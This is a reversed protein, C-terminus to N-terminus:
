ASLDVGPTPWRVRTAWGCQEFRRIMWASPDLMGRHAGHRAWAPHAHHVNHWNDGLSLIALPWLNTSRDSTGDSRRGFTHCLSNVSWTVHHLLAMRVLGAWVLAMLAGVWSGSIAYGIGFPIALSALALVPFLKGIRQLDRDRLLDPAYREASSADSTFLWGVHSFALGRLLDTGRSGYRHPSHPDGAHDSFMHHRRHTAVWSTVSGEVAMSGVVALVIKLIRHPAFGRHTFLRHFGVTIGFGTVVYLCLGLVVDTLNIVGGWLWWIALALALAPGAVIASTIVKQSAHV